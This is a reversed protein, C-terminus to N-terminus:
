ARSAERLEEAADTWAPLRDLLGLKELYETDPGGGEDTDLVAEAVHVATTMDFREVPSRATMPHHHGVVAEVFSAPMGWLALLYAGVEAHTAGFAKQEAEVVPVCRRHVDTLVGVYRAPDSGALVLRGIDHLLGCARVGGLWAAAPAETRAIQLALAGVLQSHDWIDDLAYPLLPRPDFRTLVGDALVLAKTMDTGLRQVAEQATAVPYRSGFLSSNAVQMLKATVGIDEALLRGVEAVSGDIEDLLPLLRDFLAPRSPVSQLRGVAAVLRDDALLGQVAATQRIAARLEAADLPKPLIRHALGAVRVVADPPGGGALVIRVARPYRRCVEALLHGGDAGPMRLDTVVVDAPEEALAALAAAGDPAFRTVWESRFSRLARRLGDFTKPEDDVFLVRLIM